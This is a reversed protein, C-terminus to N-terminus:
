KETREAAFGLVHGKGGLDEGKSSYGHGASTAATGMSHAPYGDDEERELLVGSKGPM